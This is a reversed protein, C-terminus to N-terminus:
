ELYKLLFNKINANYKDPNFIISLIYDINSQYISLNNKIEIYKNM